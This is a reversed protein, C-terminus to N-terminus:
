LTFRGIVHDLESVIQANVESNGAITQMRGNVEEINEGVTTISATEEEVVAMIQSLRDEIQNMNHALGDSMKRYEIMKRSFEESDKAYAAGVDVMTNYDSNVDEKMFGIMEKAVDVLESVTARTFQNIEVIEQATESTADALKGIEDAVVAFGKGEEGARAAEISANLALLQTQESITIIDNTLAVIKEIRNASEIKSEVTEAIEEVMEKMHQQSEMCAEKAINANESIDRAYAASNTSESYLTSALNKVDITTATIEAVADSTENMSASMDSLSVSIDQLEKVSAKMERNINVTSKSLSEENAKVDMMMERLKEMFTNFSNAVNEIEDGSTINLKTTLDGENNTLEDMKRNITIVNKAVLQGVVMAIFFALMVCILEVLVLTKTMNSVKADIGSVSCDVGVIAVVNGADDFVPAYGTYVKGWEDETFESDISVKGTFAEEIEDYTEYEEGIGAPEEEDADVVFVVTGDDEKRMTYIYELDADDVLFSRLIDITEQYAKTDEEGPQLSSLVEPNLFSAAMQAVAATNKKSLELMYQNIRYISIFGLLGSIFIVVLLVATTIKWSLKWKVGSRKM